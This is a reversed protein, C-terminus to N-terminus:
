DFISSFCRFRVYMERLTLYRSLVEFCIDCLFLFDFIFEDCEIIEKTVVCTQFVMFFSIQLHNFELSFLEHQLNDLSDTEM